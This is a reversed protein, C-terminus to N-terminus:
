TYIKKLTSRKPLGKQRVSKSKSDGLGYWVAVALNAEAEHEVLGDGM